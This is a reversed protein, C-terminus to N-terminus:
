IHCHLSFRKRLFKLSLFIILLSLHHEICSSPFDTRTFTSNFFCCHPESSLTLFLSWNSNLLFHCSDRDSALKSLHHYLQRLKLKFGFLLHSLYSAKSNSIDEQLESEMIDLKALRWPTPSVRIKRRLTHVKYYQHRVGSLM